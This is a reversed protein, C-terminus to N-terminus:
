KGGGEGGCGGNAGGGNSGPSTITDAAIIVRVNSPSMVSKVSSVDAAIVVDNHSRKGLANEISTAATDPLRKTSARIIM